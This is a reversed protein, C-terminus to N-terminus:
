YEITGRNVCRKCAFGTHGPWAVKRWGKAHADRSARAEEEGSLDDVAFSHESGCVDCNIMYECVSGMYGLAFDPKTDKIILPDSPHDSAM